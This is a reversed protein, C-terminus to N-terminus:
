MVFLIKKIKKWLRTDFPSVFTSKSISRLSRKLSYSLGHKTLKILIKLYHLSSVWKWRTNRWFIKSMLCNVVFLENLTDSFKNAVRYLLVYICTCNKLRNMGAIGSIPLAVVYLFFKETFHCYNDTFFIEAITSSWLSKKTHMSHMYLFFPKLPM